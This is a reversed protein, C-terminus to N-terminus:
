PQKWRCRPDRRFGAPPPSQRSRVKVQHLTLRADPFRGRRELKQHGADGIAFAAKVDSQRLRLGLKLCDGCGVAPRELPDPDLLKCRGVDNCARGVLGDELRRIEPEVLSSQRNFAGDILVLRVADDVIRQEFNAKQATIRRAEPALEHSELCKEGLAVDNGQQEVRRGVSATAIRLDFGQGVAHDAKGLLIVFVASGASPDLDALHATNGHRVTVVVHGNALAVPDHNIRPDNWPRHGVLALRVEDFRADIREVLHEAASLLRPRRRQDDALGSGAFGRHRRQICGGGQLASLVNGQEQEFLPLFREQSAGFAEAHLKTLMVFVAPQEEAIEVRVLHGGSLEGLDDMTWPMMSSPFVRTTTISLKV